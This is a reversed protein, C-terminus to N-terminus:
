EDAHSGGKTQMGACAGEGTENGETDKAAFFKLVEIPSIHAKCAQVCRGCGVCLMRDHTALFGNLKHYMRHRVRAASNQRFNHGGTVRAFEPNTCSDCVRVRDGTIGDPDMRDLIDFCFCTPCVSACAECSLCKGGLEDWFPDEHYADMLLAVEKVQPIDPNFAAQRARTLQRLTARDEDDAERLHCTSEIITAAEASSLSVLYRDGLDQLFLDFGFHSDDSGWLHCFCNETPMCSVGVILTSSRRAVYYPDPYRGDKFVLDMRNLANIDCPHAGFILRPRPTTTFPTVDNTRANYSFLPEEQPLFYKKLSTQTTEYSVVVEEPASIPRFVVGSDSQVPGIVEYSAMFAAILGPLETKDFVRYLM